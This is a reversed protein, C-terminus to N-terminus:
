KSINNQNLSKFQLSLRPNRNQLHQKKMRKMTQEEQALYKQIKQKITILPTFSSSKDSNKDHFLSDRNKDRSLKNKSQERSKDM